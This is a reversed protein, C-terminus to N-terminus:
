RVRTWDQARCVFLICGSVSLIDDQISMKSNYTKDKSPDWIKGDTWSSESKQTMAWVMSKGLHEYAPDSEGEPNFASHITGCLKDECPAIEVHLYGDESAETQWIGIANSETASTMGAYIVSTLIVISLFVSKM